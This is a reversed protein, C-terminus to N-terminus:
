INIPEVASWKKVNKENQKTVEPPIFAAWNKKWTQNGSAISAGVGADARIWEDVRTTAPIKKTILNEISNSNVIKV